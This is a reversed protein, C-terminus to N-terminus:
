YIKDGVPQSLFEVIAERNTFVKELVRKFEDPSYGLNRALDALQFPDSAVPAPQHFSSTLTSIHQM